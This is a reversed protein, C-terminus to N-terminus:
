DNEDADFYYGCPLSPLLHNREKICKSDVPFIRCNEPKRDHIRCSTSGNKHTVLMPCKFLLKCCAGCRICEGKRRKLQDEVYSRRVKSNVFRRVKGIGQQVSATVKKKIRKVM